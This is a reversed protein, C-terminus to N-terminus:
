AELICLLPSFDTQDLTPFYDGLAEEHLRKCIAHRFFHEGIRMVYNLLFVRYAEKLFLIEEGKLPYVSHYAKLFQLFRPEFFPAVTYSFTDQDGEERVVRACFYFDMTRPEVRFWDYDWRSFLHFGGGDFGVSFNGINWDVLVPIKEFHHYGLKEANTLFTDCQARLPGMSSDPLHHEKRWAPNGIFDYLTAVDSGLSKWSKSLLPAVDSSAKHLEAMETGLAIVHAPTLVPPLFDYFEAKEYFVVWTDDVHATFVEGDVRLCVRALLDRFRTGVLRRNWQQVIRHDQRFHVYSGYTTTKAIVEDGDSLLVRYVENTSVSASIDAVSLIVRKDGYEEWARRVVAPVQTAAPPDPTETPAM